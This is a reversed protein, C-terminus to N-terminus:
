HYLAQPPRCKMGDPRASVWLFSFWLLLSLM